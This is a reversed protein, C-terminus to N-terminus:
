GALNEARWAVNLRDRHRDYIRTPIPETGATMARYDVYLCFVDADSASPTSLAQYSSRSDTAASAWDARLSLADAGILGAVILLTIRAVEEAADALGTFVFILLILVAVGVALGAIWAAVKRGEEYLSWSWWAAERIAKRLPERGQGASADWYGHDDFRPDSANKCAWTSVARRFDTEAGSATAPDYFRRLEAIRKGQEARQHHRKSQQRLTWAAAESGVAALAAVYSARDSLWLGALGILFTVAHACWRATRLQKARQLEARALQLLPRDPVATVPPTV